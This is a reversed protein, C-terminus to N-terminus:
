APTVTMRCCADGKGICADLHAAVGQARYSELWQLNHQCCFYRLLQPLGEDQLVEAFMCGSVHLAAGKELTELRSRCAGEM